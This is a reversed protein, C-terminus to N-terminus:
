AVLKEFLDPFGKALRKRNGGDAYDWAQVLTQHFSGGYSRVSELNAEAKRVESLHAKAIKYEDFRDTAERFSYIFSETYNGLDIIGQIQEIGIREFVKEGCCGVIEFRVDSWGDDSVNKVSKGFRKDLEAAKKEVFEGLQAIEKLSLGSDNLLYDSCQKYNRAGYAMDKIIGWMTKSNM